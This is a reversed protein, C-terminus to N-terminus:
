ENDDGPYPIMVKQKIGANERIFTDATDEDHSQYPNRFTDHRHDWIFWLEAERKPQILNRGDDSGSACFLGSASWEGSMAGNDSLYVGFYHTEEKFFLYAYRGNATLVEILNDPYQSLPFNIM